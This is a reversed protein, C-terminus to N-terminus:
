KEWGQLNYVNANSFVTTARLPRSNWAGSLETAITVLSKCEERGLRNSPSVLIM